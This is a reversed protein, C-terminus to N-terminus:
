APAPLTVDSIMRARRAADERRDSRTRWARGYVLRLSTRAPSSGTGAARELYSVRSNTAARLECSRMGRRRSLDIALALADTAETLRDRQRLLIHGRARHLEPELWCEQRQCSVALGEEISALACDVAGSALQAEAMLLLNFPHWLRTGTATLDAIGKQLLEIGMEGKGDVAMQWGMTVEAHGQWMALSHRKALMSVDHAMPPILHRQGLLFNLGCGIYTLAYGLSNAHKGHMGFNVAQDGITIAQDPCGIQWRALALITLGAVRADVGYKYTLALHQDPDYLALSRELEPISRTPGGLYFQSTARLRHGIM